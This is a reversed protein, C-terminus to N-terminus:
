VEDERLMGLEKLRPIADGGFIFRWTNFGDRKQFFGLFKGDEKITVMGSTVINKENKEEIEISFM